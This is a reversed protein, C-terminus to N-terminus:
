DLVAVVVAALPAFHDISVTGKLVTEALRIANHRPVACCLVACCLVASPRVQSYRQSVMVALRAHELVPRTVCFVKDVLEGPLSDQVFPGSPGM